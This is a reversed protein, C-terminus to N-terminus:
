RWTRVTRKKTKMTPNPGRSHSRNSPIHRRPRRHSASRRAIAWRPRWSKKACLPVPARGTAARSREAHFSELGHRRRPRPPQLPAARLHHNGTASRVGRRALHRQVRPKSPSRRRELRRRPSNRFSFQSSCISSSSAGSCSSSCSTSSCSHSARLISCRTCLPRGAMSPSRKSSNYSRGDLITLTPPVTTSTTRLTAVRRGPRASSRPSSPIASSELTLTGSSSHASARRAQARM